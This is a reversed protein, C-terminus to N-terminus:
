KSSQDVGEAASSYFEQERLKITDINLARMCQLFFMFSFTGRNIKNSLAKPEEKVGVSELARSLKKPSIGKAKLETQLVRRAERRWEASTLIKTLNKQGTKRM